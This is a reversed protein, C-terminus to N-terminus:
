EELIEELRKDLEEIKIKEKPKVKKPKIKPIKAIIPKPKVVRKTIILHRLIPKSETIHYKIENIKSPEVEFDVSYLYAQKLKKIPYALAIKKGSFDKVIKGGLRNITDKIQKLLYDLDDQSINPNVLFSVEYLM